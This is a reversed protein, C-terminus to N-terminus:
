SKSEERTPTASAAARVTTAPVLLAVPYRDLLGALRLVGGDFERGTLVDVVPRGALIM